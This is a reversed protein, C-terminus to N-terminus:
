GVLPEPVDNILEDVLKLGKALVAAFDLGLIVGLESEELFTGVDPVNVVYEVDEVRQNLFGFDVLLKGCRPITAIHALNGVLKARSREVLHKSVKADNTQEAHVAQKSVVCQSELGHFVHFEVFLTQKGADSSAVNRCVVIDAKGVTPKAEQLSKTAGKALRAM